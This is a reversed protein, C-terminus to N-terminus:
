ATPPGTFALRRHEEEEAKAYALRARRRASEARSYVSKVLWMALREQIHSTLSSLLSLCVISRSSFLKLLLDDALSVCRHVRAPQLRDLLEREMHLAGLCDVILVVPPGVVPGEPGFPPEQGVQACIVHSCRPDADGENWDTFEMGAQAGLEKLATVSDPNSCFVWAGEGASALAALEERIWCDRSERTGHLQYSEGRVLRRVHTKVVPREFERCIEAVLGEASHTAGGMALYRRLARGFTSHVGTRPQQSPPLGEKVELLSRLADDPKKETGVICGGQTKFQLDDELVEYHRDRVFLHHAVVADEVLRRRSLPRSLPGSAIGQITGLREEGDPTLEARGEAVSLHFDVGEVLESALRTALLKARHEGEAKEQDRVVFPRTAFDCLLGSADDILALQLGKLRMDAVAGAGATLRAVLRSVRGGEGQTACRDKLFEDMLASVGVFVVERKWTSRREEVSGRQTLVGSTVGLRDFFPAFRAALEVARPERPSIVHVSVGGLAAVAGALALSAGRDCDPGHEVIKGSLVGSAVKLDEFSPRRGTSRAAIEAVFAIARAILDVGPESDRTLLGRLTL